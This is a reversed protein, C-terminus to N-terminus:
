FYFFTQCTTTANVCSKASSAECIAFRKRSVGRVNGCVAVLPKDGVSQRCRTQIRVCLIPKVQLGATDAATEGTQEQVDLTRRARTRRADARLRPLRLEHPRRLQASDRVATQPVARGADERRRGSRGSGFPANAGGPRSFIICSFGSDSFDCCQLLEKPM